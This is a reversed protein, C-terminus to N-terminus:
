HVTPTSGTETIPQVVHIKAEGAEKDNLMLIFRYEGPAPIGFGAIETVVEALGDPSLTFEGMSMDAMHGAPGVVRWAGIIKSGPAAVVKAYISLRPHQAPFARSFIRDFLGILTKKGTTADQIIQDCVLVVPARPQL